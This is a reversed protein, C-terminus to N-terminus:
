RLTRKREASDIKRILNGELRDHQGARTISLMPSRFAENAKRAKEDQERMYAAEDQNTRIKSMKMGGSM